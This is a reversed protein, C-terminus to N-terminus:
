FSWPVGFLAKQCLFMFCLVTIGLSRFVFLILGIMQRRMGPSFKWAQLIFYPVLVSSLLRASNSVCLESSPSALAVLIQLMCSLLSNCLSCSSWCHLKRVDTCIHSFWWPLSFFWWSPTLLVILVPCVPGPIIWM